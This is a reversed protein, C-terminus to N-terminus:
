TNMKLIKEFEALFERKPAVKSFDLLIHNPDCVYKRLLSVHFINHIKWDDRLRLAYAVPGIDWSHQKMEVYMRLMDKLTRNKQEIQGNTKWHYAINLKFKTGCLKFLITFFESVFKHDRDSIIERSIEDYRFIERM